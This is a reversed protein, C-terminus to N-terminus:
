SVKVEAEYSLAESARLLRQITDDLKTKTNNITAAASENEPHINNFTIGHVWEYKVHNADRRWIVVIRLLTDKTAGESSLTSVFELQKEQKWLFIMLQTAKADSIKYFGVQYIYAFRVRDASYGSELAIKRLVHRANDHANTNETVLIVCL